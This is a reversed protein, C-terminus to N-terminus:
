LQPNKLDSTCAYTFFIEHLYEFSMFHEIRANKFKLIINRSCKTFNESLSKVNKQFEVHKYAFLFTLNRVSVKLKKRICTCLVCLLGKSCRCVM